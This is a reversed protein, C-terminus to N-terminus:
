KGDSVGINVYDYYMGTGGSAYVNTLRPNRYYFSKDFVYPLYVADKMVGQDVKTALKEIEAPDTTAPMADLAANVEPDNLSVYNSTGSPNISKGNAISNWFGFPSPYDPGWGAIALGIKKSLVNAPVNILGSYYTKQDGPIASLKIGVRGLSQQLSAFLKPGIGVNTYAANLAFGNPQGCEALKAKAKELDGTGGPGSPYPNFDKQWGKLTPPTMTNSVEGATSGGRLQLLEAKNVAYFVAERCAKNTLPAVTQFVAIYRTFGSVPNDVNAKKAPDDLLGKRSTPQLNGDAIADIDGKIVRADLDDASSVITLTIKDVRATRIKDTAQDWNTNRVFSVSQGQKYAEIKYPGSSAPALAYKDKTDRAKPVPASTPMALLYQFDSFPRQLTFKITQDDPTTISALDGTPDKYPGKYTASGQDDCKDLLCTYYAVGPGASYLDTAYLRMFGYKVDKSTIPKGDDWKLGSQLKVTWQTKDANTEPMAAALDPIVESGDAGPKPAFGLLTRTFIRQM